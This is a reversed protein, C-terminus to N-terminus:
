PPSQLFRIPGCRAASTLVSSACDGRWGTGQVQMFDYCSQGPGGHIFLLPPASADGRDDIFLRTDNIHVLGSTM